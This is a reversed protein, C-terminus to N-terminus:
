DHEHRDTTDRGQEDPGKKTHETLARILFFTVAFVSGNVPNLERICQQAHACDIELISELGLGKNREIDDTVAFRNMYPM